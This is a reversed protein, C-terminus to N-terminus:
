ARAIGGVCIQWGALSYLTFEWMERKKTYKTMSRDQGRNKQLRNTPSQGRCFRLEKRLFNNNVGGGRGGDYKFNIDQVTVL